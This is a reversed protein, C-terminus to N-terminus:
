SVRRVVGAQLAFLEPLASRCVDGLDDPIKWGKDSLGQAIRNKVRLSEEQELAGVIAAVSSEDKMAFVTTVAAFRVPENADSMFPEVALRVDETVYEELARILQVKPESNRVYETDFEDLLALLEDVIQDEPVIQRLVRLPWTLSEARKCYKRIPELAVEGAATIGKAASEKEEQDTISPDMTFDFRRLLAAASEATAMRGLQEIAEQRDYNQSLKSGVIKQLRTIERESRRPEDSKKKGLFDFLGM